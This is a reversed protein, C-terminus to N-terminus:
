NILWCGSYPKGLSSSELKDSCSTLLTDSCRLYEDYKQMVYSNHLGLKYLEYTM